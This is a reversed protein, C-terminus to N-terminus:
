TQILILMIEITYVFQEKVATEEEKYSEQGLNCRPVKHEGILM